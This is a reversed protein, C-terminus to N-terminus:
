EAGEGAGLRHETGAQLRAINERHAAVVLVAVAAASALLWAPPPATWGVRGYRTAAVVAVFIGLALLTPRLALAAMAGAATAVGKGGRFSHYAPFVHGVVAAVAAAGIVPGPAALARAVLVPAAGKAVDLVLVAVAPAPGALRLVNTAGANGSGATRVDFGKLARVILLSWSVAGLLYAGAVLALWIM